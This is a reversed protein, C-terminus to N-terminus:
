EGVYTLQIKEFLSYSEEMLEVIQSHTPLSLYPKSKNHSLSAM